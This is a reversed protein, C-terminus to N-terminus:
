KYSQQIAAKRTKMYKELSTNGVKFAQNVLDNPYSALHTEILKWVHIEEQKQGLQDQLVAIRILNFLYLIPYSGVSNSSEITKRLEQADQLAKTFDGGGIILSNQSYQQYFELHDPQVRNFIAKMFSSSQPIQNSLLLSQALAGDYKVQLDPHKKFLEDLEKLKERALEPNSFNNEQFQTFLTEAKLFNIEANVDKQSLYRYSAILLLFLGVLVGIIIKKNSSIWDIISDIDWKDNFPDSQNSSSIKSM